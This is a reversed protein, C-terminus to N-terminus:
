SNAIRQAIRKIDALDDRHRTEQRKLDRVIAEQEKITDLLKKNREELEKITERLDRQVDRLRPIPEWAVDNRIDNEVMDPATALMSALYSNKPLAQVFARFYDIEQQKTPNDNLTKM